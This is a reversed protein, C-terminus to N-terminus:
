THTDTINRTHTHTHTPTNINRTHTHTHKDEAHAHTHTNINRTHTRTHALGWIGDRVLGLFHSRIGLRERDLPFSCITHLFRYAHAHMRARAPQKSPVVCWGGEFM